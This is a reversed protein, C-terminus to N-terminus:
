YRGTPKRRRPSRGPANAVGVVVAYRSEKGRIDEIDSPKLM